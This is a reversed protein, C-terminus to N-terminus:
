SVPQALYTQAPVGATVVCVPAPLHLRIAGAVSAAASIEVPGIREVLLRQAHRVETDSVEILEAGHAQALHFCQAGPTCARLADCQTDPQSIVIRHGAALSRVMSNAGAPEVGVVRVATGHCAAAILTGAFLGGGGVPVVITATNPHATLIEAGVTAQGAIVYQDDHSSCYDAGWRHALRRALRDRQENNGESYIIECGSDVLSKIKRDDAATTVVVTLHRTDRTANLVWRLAHAHNGSSATVIHRRTSTNALWSAAGRIKFSGSPLSREDKIWIGLDPLWTLPTEPAHRRIAALAAEHDPIM